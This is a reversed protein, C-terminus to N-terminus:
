QQIIRLLCQMHKEWPAFCTGKKSRSKKMVKNWLVFDKRGPAQRSV